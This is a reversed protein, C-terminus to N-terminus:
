GLLWSSSHLIELSHFLGSPTLSGKRLSASLDTRLFFSSNTYNSIRTKNTRWKDEHVRWATRVEFRSFRFLYRITYLSFSRRYIPVQVRLNLGPAVCLFSSPNWAIFTYCEKKFYIYQSHRLRKNYLAVAVSCAAAMTTKVELCCFARSAAIIVM